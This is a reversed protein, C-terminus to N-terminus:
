MRSLAGSKAEDNSVFRKGSEIDTFAWTSDASATAVYDGTPHISLGNVEAAHSKLVANSAFKSGTHCPANIQEGTTRTLHVPTKAPPPNSKGSADWVRVTKDQSCSLIRDGSSHYAVATVKKTHGSLNSTVKGSARNFVRVIKDVGGTVTQFDM